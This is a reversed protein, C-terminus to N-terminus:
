AQDSLQRKPSKSAGFFGLAPDASEEFRVMRKVTSRIFTNARSIPIREYDIEDYEVRRAGLFEKFQAAGATASEGMHFWRAGKAYANQLVVWNLLHPACIKRLGPDWAARSGHANPGHLVIGAAVPRDEQWAVSVEFRPGLSGAIRNWKSESDRLRGRTQALWVPEHQRRAWSARSKRALTFFTGLLAVGPVTEVRVGNKEAAAIGKKASRGFRAHIAEPGGQLDVVHSVKRVRPFEPVFRDWMETHLPNPRVRFRLADIGALDESVQAIDCPTVGGDAIIGGFGWGRRPSVVGCLIHGAGVRTMPFVIRRGNELVYLRSADRWPSRKCIADTWEPAQSPLADPDSAFVSSWQARPAPSVVRIAKM